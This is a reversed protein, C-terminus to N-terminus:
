ANKNKREDIKEKISNCTIKGIQYLNYIMACVLLTVIILLMIGALIQTTNPNTNILDRIKEFIWLIPTSIIAVGILFAVIEILGVGLYLLGSCIKKIIQM